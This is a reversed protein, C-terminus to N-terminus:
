KRQTIAAASTHIEPVYGACIAKIMSQPTLVKVEKGKPRRRRENYGAPSWALLHNGWVLHAQDGWAPINVFVGDPLEDLSGKVFRKSRDSAVREAHLQNDIENATPRPSSGKGPNAEKWANCFAIFREHRCETCPRHGAAFATAEDLFFLETYRSPTMM